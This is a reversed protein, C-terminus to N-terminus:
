CFQLDEEVMVAHLGAVVCVLLASMDTHRGNWAFICISRWGCLCMITPV